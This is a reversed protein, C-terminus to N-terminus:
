SGSCRTPNAQQVGLVFKGSAGPPCVGFGGGPNQWAAPNNSQVTRDTWGWQGGVALDMRTQVSVWYTGPALVAPATLTISFTCTGTICDGGSTTYSQGTATYVNTGPLGGSNQYIFVNFSAAPGTGNFYIGTADVENITWTQGGPVVFDDALFDDFPDFAAEFDQSSSSVTGPNNLQDYLTVLPVKPPPPMRFVPVGPQSHKAPIQSQAAQSTDSAQAASAGIAGTVAPANHSPNEKAVGNPKAAATTGRSRSQALAFPIACVALLLMLYFGSRVLYAKITPNTQKKM